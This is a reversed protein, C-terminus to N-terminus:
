ILVVVNLKSLVLSGLQLFFGLQLQFLVQCVPEVIFSSAQTECSREIVLRDHM